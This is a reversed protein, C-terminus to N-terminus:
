HSGKSAAKTEANIFVNYFVEGCVRCRVQVNMTDNILEASVFEVDTHGKPCPHNVAWEIMTIPIGNVMVFPPFNPSAGWLLSGAVLSSIVALIIILKTM